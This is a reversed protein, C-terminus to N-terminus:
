QTIPRLLCMERRRATVVENALDATRGLTVPLPRVPSILENEWCRALRHCGRCKGPAPAPCFLFRLGVSPSSESQAVCGAPAPSSSATLGHRGVECGVGGRQGWQMHRVAKHTQKFYQPVQNRSHRGDRVIRKEDQCGGMGAGAPGAMRRGPPLRLLPQPLTLRSGVAVMAPGPATFM